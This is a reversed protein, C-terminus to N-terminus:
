QEFFSINTMSSPHHLTENFDTVYILMNPSTM